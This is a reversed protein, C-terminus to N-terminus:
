CHTLDILPLSLSCVSFASQIVSNINWVSYIKLRPVSIKEPCIQWFLSHNCAFIQSFSVTFKSLSIQLNWDVKLSLNGGGAFSTGFEWLVWLWQMSFWGTVSYDSQLKLSFTKEIRSWHLSKEVRVLPAVNESREGREFNFKGLVLNTSLTPPKQFHSNALVKKLSLLNQIWIVNETITPTHPSLSLCISQKTQVM